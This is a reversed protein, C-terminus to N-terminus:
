AREMGAPEDPLVGARAARPHGLAVDARWAVRAARATPARTGPARARPRVALGRRWVRYPAGSADPAGLVLAALSPDGATVPQHHDPGLVLLATSLADAATADDCVVAALLAGQVPRALRPDLVHGYCVDGAHFGKGWMASVSLSRDVLPVIALVRDAAPPPDGHAGGARHPEPQMGCANDGCARRERERAADGPYELAVQWAPADPPAGITTVSSTGGHLLASRIGLERLTLAAQALAYGKGIAGLDIAMGPRAFRITRRREDLDLLPMGTRARARELTLADPVRGGGHGALGWCHMLPGITIDFAGDTLCHLQRARLLLAFLGPEVPVPADAALANIRSVDSTARYCSLQTELRRIVGLAEEGAARLRPRDDGHLVLEFRTAMAACALLVPPPAAGAPDHGSFGAPAAGGASASHGRDRGSHGRDRGPVGRDRGPVGRDRGPDGRDRGPDGRDRGPDCGPRLAAPM